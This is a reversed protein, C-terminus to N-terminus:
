GLRPAQPTRTAAVTLQDDLLTIVLADHGTRSAARLKEILPDGPQSLPLAILLDDGDHTQQGPGRHEAFVARVTSTAPQNPGRPPQPLGNSMLYVGDDAVLLLAPGAPEDDIPDGHEAAAVAHEALEMATVLNFRFVSNM